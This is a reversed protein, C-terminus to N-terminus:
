KIIKGNCHMDGTYDISDTSESLCSIIGHGSKYVQMTFNWVIDTSEELSMFDIIYGNKKTYKSERPKIVQNKIILTKGATSSGYTSNTIRGYYPLNCNLTDNKISVYYDHAVQEVGMTQPYVRTVMIKIDKAKVLSDVKSAIREIKAQKRSKRKANEGYVSVGILMCIIITLVKTYNMDM